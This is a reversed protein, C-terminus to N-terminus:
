HRGKQFRRVCSPRSVMTLSIVLVGGAIAVGFDEPVNLLVAASGGILAWLIPILSLWVVSRGHTQLLLGVTFITTPCPAVGFLPGKMMGHGAIIGLIEYVAVAYVILAFGIISRWDTRVEFKLNGTMVAHGAFLAAQVIFLAAFVKAAPNIPSFFALQYALGNWAWLLSLIAFIIRGRAPRGILLAALAAFGLAYAIIQVPWIAPNYAAFVAFFQKDDFPLTM